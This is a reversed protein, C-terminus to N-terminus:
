SLVKAYIDKLALQCNITSLTLTQDLGEIRTCLWSSDPQKVYHLIIPADQAVLLYERFSEIEQYYLFKRVRDYGATSDSLVEIILLPNLLVDKEDEAFLPKECVVTVDPYFYKRKSPVRVRQDSNFVRCPGDWLKMNILSHVNGSVLNHTPNGGAMAHLGVMPYVVGDIYESKFEAHREIALYEEPTLYKLQPVASM